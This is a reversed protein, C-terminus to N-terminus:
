MCDMENYIFFITGYDQIKCSITFSEFVQNLCRRLNCTEPENLSVPANGLDSITYNHIFFTYLINHPSLMNYIIIIIIVHM